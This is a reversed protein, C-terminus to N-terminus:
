CVWQVICPNHKVSVSNRRLQPSRVPIFPNRKILCVYTPPCVKTPLSEPIQVWLPMTMAKLLTVIYLCKPSAATGSPPTCATGRSQMLKYGPMRRLVSFFWPFIETPIASFCRVSYQQVRNMQDVRHGNWPRGRIRMVRKTMRWLSQNEPDLNELTSSWEDNRWEHLWHTVSRQLRNVEAKLAPDRTDHWQRRLRNKLRIEDQITAPLPPRPDSRPRSKPTAVEIDSLIASSLEGVCRDVAEKGRIEPNSPLKEELCEQFRTWDARKFDPRDPLTLFSSRCMTDILVPLHDSSLASCLTLSVPTVINKTLVIDLVDPIASPNCPISTPSDPGYILCSKRDAYDRLLRGRTTTLRSNWDVHKANLDGAMLVPLGGDLCASLDRKILPRSLSLYVALIKVPRGALTIKIATAKVHRLGPVAHHDIGRRVLIATGGGQANRDTRHCVYNALRFAQEPSLHTDGLLCIDVGHHGIFHELELRGGRVGDANWCALRLCRGNTRRPRAAM